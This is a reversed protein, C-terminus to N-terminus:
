SFMGGKMGSIPSGKEKNRTRKKKLYTPGGKGRPKKELISSREQNTGTTRRERPTQKLLMGQRRRGERGMLKKKKLYARTKGRYLSKKEGIKGGGLVKTETM